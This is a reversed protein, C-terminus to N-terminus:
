RLDPFALGYKKSLEAQLQDGRRNIAQVSTNHAKEADAWTKGTQGRRTNDSAQNLLYSATDNLKAGAEYWNAIDQGLQVVTPDVNTADLSRFAQAAYNGAQGRGNIFDGANSQNIGAAPAARMAEEKAMITNMANWYALTKQGTSTSSEAPTSEASVTNQAPVKFATYPQASNSHPQITTQSDTGLLAEVAAKDVSVSAVTSPDQSSRQQSFRATTRPRPAPTDESKDADPKLHQNLHLDLEGEFVERTSPARVSPSSTSHSASSTLQVLQSLDEGFLWFGTLLGACLCAVAGLTESTTLATRRQLKPNKVM